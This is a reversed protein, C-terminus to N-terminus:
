SYSNVENCVTCLFNLILNKTIEHNKKCNLEVENIKKITLGLKKETWLNTQRKVDEKEKWFIPPKIQNIVQELDNKSHSLKKIKILRHIKKSFLKLLIFFDEILFNNEDITKKLKKRNGNLCANIIFDNQYNGALNTLEKIEQYSIIKKNLALSKLKNIENTLNIRDGMSREILLNISENSLKIKFSKIENDIIRKLEFNNDLYCAVSVLNKEKEFLNRIKSKKELREGSFFILTDKINKKFIESIFSFSKDTIRNVIIAKKDDFLSGSFLLNYFDNQNKIVEEEDFELKKIKGLKIEKLDLLSKILNKKLGINEGYILFSNFFELDRKLIEYSKIIM